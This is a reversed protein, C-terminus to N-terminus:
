HSAIDDYGQSSCEVRGPRATYTVTDPRWAAEVDYSLEVPYGTMDAVGRKKKEREYAGRFDPVMADTLGTAAKVKAWCATALGYYLSCDAYYNRRYRLVFGEATFRMARWDGWMSDEFLSRGTRGNFIGFRSPQKPDRADILVVYDGRVGRFQDYYSLRHEGKMGIACASAGGKAPVAYFDAGDVSGFKEAKVVFHPYRYCTWSIQQKFKGQGSGSGTSVPKDFPAAHATGLLMLGGVLTAILLTGRLMAMGM